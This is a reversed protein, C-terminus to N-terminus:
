SQSEKKKTVCNQNLDGKYTEDVSKQKWVEEGIKVQQKYKLTRRQYKSCSNHHQSKSDAPSWEMDVSEQPTENSIPGVVHVVDKLVHMDEGSHQKVEAGGDIRDDVVKEGAVKSLLKELQHTSM